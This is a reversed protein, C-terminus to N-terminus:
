PLTLATCIDLSTASQAVEWASFFGGGDDTCGTGVDWSDSHGGLLM